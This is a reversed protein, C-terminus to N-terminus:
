KCKLMEKLKEEILHYMTDAINNILASDITEFVLDYDEELDFNVDTEQIIQNAIQTSMDEKDIVVFIYDEYCEDFKTDVEIQGNIDRITLFKDEMKDGVYM